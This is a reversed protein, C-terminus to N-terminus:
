GERGCVCVGRGPRAMSDTVTVAGRTNSRSCAASGKSTASSSVCRASGRRETLVQWRSHTRGAACGAKQWEKHSNASDVLAVGCGTPINVVPTMM